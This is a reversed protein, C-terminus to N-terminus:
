DLSGIPNADPNRLPRTVFLDVPDLRESYDRIFDIPAEVTGVKESPLKNAKSPDIEIVKVRLHRRKAIKIDRKELPLWVGNDGEKAVVANDKDLILNTGPFIFNKYQNQKVLISSDSFSSTKQETHEEDIGRSHKHCYPSDTKIVKGCMDGKREGYKLVVTCFRLQSMTNIRNWREKVENPRYMLALVDDLLELEDVYSLQKYDVIEQVLRTLSAPYLVVEDDREM